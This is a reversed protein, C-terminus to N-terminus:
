GSIAPASAPMARRVTSRLGFSSKLSVGMVPLSIPIPFGPRRSSGQRQKSPGRRLVRMYASDMGTHAVQDAYSVLPFRTIINTTLLGVPLRNPMTLIKGSGLLQISGDAGALLHLPTDLPPPARLTIEAGRDMGKALLGCVYGGNASNPPGRFRREITISQM